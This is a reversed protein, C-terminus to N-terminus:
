MQGIAGVAALVLGIIIFIGALRGLRQAAGTGGAALLAIGAAIM